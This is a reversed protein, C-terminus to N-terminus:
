EYILRRRVFDPATKELHGDHRKISKHFLFRKQVADGHRIHPFAVALGDLVMNWAKRQHVAGGFVRWTQYVINGFMTLFFALFGCRERDAEAYRRPAM